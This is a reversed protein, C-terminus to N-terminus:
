SKLALGAAGGAKATFVLSTSGLSVSADTELEWISDKNTTGEEVVVLLGPKMEASDNFDATRTMASSAGNFVYIGNQSGTSQAPLLVRNNLALSVGDISAGPASLNVNGTAAARVKTLSSSTLVLEVSDLRVDLADIEEKMAFPFKAM